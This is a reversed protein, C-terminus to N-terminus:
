ARSYTQRKMNIKDEGLDRSSNKKPILIIHNHVSEGILGKIFYSSGKNETLFHRRQQDRDQWAKALKGNDLASRM